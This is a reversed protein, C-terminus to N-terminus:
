LLVCNRLLVGSQEREAIYAESLIRITEGTKLTDPANNVDCSLTYPVSTKLGVTSTSNTRTVSSVVGSVILTNERYTSWFDDQQMATALQNPTATRIAMHKVAYKDGLYFTIIVVLILAIVIAGSVLLKNRLLKKIVDM